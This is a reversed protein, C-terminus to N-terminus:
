GNERPSGLCLLPLRDVWRSVVRDGGGSGIPDGWKVCWAGRSGVVVGYKGGFPGGMDVVRDVGDGMAM